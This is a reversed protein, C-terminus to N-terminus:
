YNTKTDIFTLVNVDYTDVIYRSIKQIIEM